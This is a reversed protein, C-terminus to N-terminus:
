AQAQSQRLEQYAAELLASITPYGREQDGIPGWYGCDNKRVWEGPRFDDLEQVGDKSHLVAWGDRGSVNVKFTWGDPTTITKTHPYIVQAIHSM